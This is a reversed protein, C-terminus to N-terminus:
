FTLLTKMQVRALENSFSVSWSLSTINDPQKSFKRAIVDNLLVGSAVGDFVPLDLGIWDLSICEKDNLSTHYLCRSLLKCM